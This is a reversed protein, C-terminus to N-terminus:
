KVEYVLNTGTQLWDSKYVLYQETYGSANTIDIAVPDSFGGTLSGLTFTVGGLRSPLAYFIYQNDPSVQISRNKKGSLTRSTLAKVLGETIEESNSVGWFINNEFNVTVTSKVKRGETDTATIVYDKTSTVDYDIYQTQGPVNIGNITTKESKGEITWNVIVNKTTGLEVIEPSVSAGTISVGPNGGGGGPTGGNELAAIRAANSSIAENIARIAGNFEEVTVNGNIYRKGGAIYGMIPGCNCDDMFGSNRM